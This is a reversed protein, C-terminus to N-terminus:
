NHYNRNWKLHKWTSFKHGINKCACFARPSITVAIQSMSTLWPEKFANSFYLKWRESLLQLPLTSYGHTLLVPKMNDIKLQTEDRDTTKENVIFGPHLACQNENANNLARSDNNNNNNKIWHLSRFNLAICNPEQRRQSNYKTGWFIVYRCGFVRRLSFIVSTPQVLFYM